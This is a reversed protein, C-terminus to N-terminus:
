VAMGNTVATGSGNNYTTTSYYKRLENMHRLVIIFTEDTQGSFLQFFLDMYNFITEITAKKSFIEREMEGVEFDYDCMKIIIETMHHSKRLNSM